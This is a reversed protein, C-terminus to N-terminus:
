SALEARIQEALSGGLVAGIIGRKPTWDKKM